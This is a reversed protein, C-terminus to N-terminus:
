WGNRVLWCITAFQLRMAHGDPAPLRPAECFAASASTAAHKPQDQMEAVLDNGVREALSEPGAFDPKQGHFREKISASLIHRTPQQPCSSDVLCGVLLTWSIQCGGTAPRANGLEWAARLGTGATLLHLDQAGAAAGCSAETSCVVGATYRVGFLHIGAKHEEGSCSWLTSFGRFHVGDALLRPCRFAAVVLANTRSRAPM